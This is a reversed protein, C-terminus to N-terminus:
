RSWHSMWKEAKSLDFFEMGYDTARVGPFRKELDKNMLEAEDLVAARWEDETIIGKDILINTMANVEVRLMISLDRHDRVAQAEPDQDSRTGLQWGAFVMRWKGLRNLALMLDEVRVAM